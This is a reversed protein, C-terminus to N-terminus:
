NKRNKLIYDGGIMAAGDLLQGLKNQASVLDDMAVDRANKADALINNASNFAQQAANVAEIADKIEKTSM